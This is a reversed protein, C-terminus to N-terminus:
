PMCCVLSLPKTARKMKMSGVDSDSSSDRTLFRPSRESVSISPRSLIAFSSISCDFVSPAYSWNNTFSLRSSVNSFSSAYRKSVSSGEFSSGLAEDFSTSMASPTTGSALMAVGASSPVSDHDSEYKQDIKKISTNVGYRASFPLM